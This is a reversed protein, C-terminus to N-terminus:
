SIVGRPTTTNERSPLVVLINTSLRGNKVWEGEKSGKRVRQAVKVELLYVDVEGSALSRIGLSPPGRGRPRSAETRQSDPGAARPVGGCERIEWVERDRDEWAASCGGLGREADASLHRWDKPAAGGIGGYRGQFAVGQIEQRAGSAICIKVRALWARWSCGSLRAHRILIPTKKEVIEQAVNLKSLVLLIHLTDWLTTGVMTAIEPSNREVPSYQEPVQANWSSESAAGIHLIRLVSDTGLFYWKALLELAYVCECPFPQSLKDSSTMEVVNKRVCNRWSGTYITGAGCAESRNARGTNTLEMERYLAYDVADDSEGVNTEGLLHVQPNCANHPQEVSLATSDRRTLFWNIAWDRLSDLGTEDPITLGSGVIWRTNWESHHGEHIFFSQRRRRMLHVAPIRDRGGSM